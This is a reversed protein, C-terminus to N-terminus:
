IWNGFSLYWAIRKGADLRSFNMNLKIIVKRINSNNDNIEINSTKKAIKKVPHAEEMTPPSAIFSPTM